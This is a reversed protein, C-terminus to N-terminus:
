IVEKKQNAYKYWSSVAQRLDNLGASCRSGIKYPMPYYIQMEQPCNQEGWVVIVTFLGTERLAKITMLQGTKIPVGPGKAELVLFKGNREVLGDLDSPKIKTNGFCGDLIGWDWLAGVFRDLDNITLGGM